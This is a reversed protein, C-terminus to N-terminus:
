DRQVQRFIGNDAELIGTEKLNRKQLYTLYDGEFAVRKELTEEFKGIASLVLESIERVANESGSCHTTYDCLKNKICYDIFLPNAKHRVLMRVGAERALSLDLIDDFVFLVEDRHIGCKSELRHLLEVKNKVHFYVADLHERKAWDFATKNNQGTVVATYPIEGDNLYYGFRLMNVGMSDIENFSSPIEGKEGSNFIGDWDFLLAKVRSIKSKLEAPKCNLRGGSQIFPDAFM